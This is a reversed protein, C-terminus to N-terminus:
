QEKGQTGICVSSQTHGGLTSDRNGGTRDFDQMLDRKGEFDSERPIGGGM